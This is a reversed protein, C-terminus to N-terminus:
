TAKAIARREKLFVIGCGGFVLAVIGFAAWAPLHLAVLGFALATGLMTMAVALILIGVSAIKVEEGVDKVKIIAEAKLKDVEAVALDRADHLVGSILQVPQEDRHDDPTTNM